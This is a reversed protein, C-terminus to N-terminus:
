RKARLTVTPLDLTEGATIRVTTLPFPHEVGDFDVPSGLVGRFQLEDFKGPPLFFEYKGEDDTRVVFLGHNATRDEERWLVFAITCQALPHESGGPNVVVVKGRAKTNRYLNRKVSLLDTKIKYLDFQKKRRTEINEVRNRQVVEVSLLRLRLSTVRENLM